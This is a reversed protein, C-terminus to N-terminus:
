KGKLKEYLVTANEKLIKRTDEKSFEQLLDQELEQKIKHYPYFGLKQKAMEADYLNVFSMDDSAVMVKESGFIKVLYKIHALYDKRDQGVFPPYSVAGIFGDVEKLAQLQKDTLNRPHDKLSRANSHSAYCIVEKGQRKADKILEIMDFFTAENAHSLDIGLGLEIAKKLFRRGLDTLGSSDRPGSGYRNKNNWVLLISDLGAEKLALLEQEDKIYDCGEISYIIKIPLQLKTIQRKSEQFMTLVNIKEVPLNMEKLMEEENMFYLNAFIGHINQENFNNKLTQLYAPKQYHHALLAISLLDYHADFM